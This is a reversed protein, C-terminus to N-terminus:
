GLCGSSSPGGCPHGHVARPDGRRSPGAQTDNEIEGDIKIALDQSSERAMRDLPIWEQAVCDGLGTARPRACRFGRGGAYLSGNISGGMNVGVRVQRREDAVPHFVETRQYLPASYIWRDGGSCMPLRLIKFYKEWGFSHGKETHSVFPSFFAM